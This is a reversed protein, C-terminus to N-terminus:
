FRTTAVLCSLRLRGVSRRAAPDSAVPTGSLGRFFDGPRHRIPASTNTAPTLPRGGPAGGRQLSGRDHFQRDHRLDGDISHHLSVAVRRILVAPVSELAASPGQPRSVVLGPREDGPGVLAGARETRGASRRARRRSRPLLRASARGGWRRPAPDPVWTRRRPWASRVASPPCPRGTRHGGAAMPSSFALCAPSSCTCPLPVRTRQSSPCPRTSSIVRSMTGTIRPWPVRSNGRVPGSM